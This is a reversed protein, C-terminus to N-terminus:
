RAGEVMELARRVYVTVMERRYGASARIDTIPRCSEAAAAAAAAISEPGLLRGLLAQEAEVCRYPVPNVAGLAVRAETVEGAEERLAVAVNVLPIDMSRRLQRRLYAGRLGAPPRPLRVGLVIEGPLLATTGPGTPFASYPLERISDGGDVSASGVIVRADYLLLPPSTDASPSANCINGGLTALNRVQWCGMQAAAQALVPYDFRVAVSGSLDTMCVLAGLLLQGDVEVIGELGPLRTLDVLLAPDAKGKDLLVAVDTGGALAMAGDTDRLLRGAEELTSPAVYTMYRM